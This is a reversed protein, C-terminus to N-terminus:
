TLAASRLDLVLFPSQTYNESGGIGGGVVVLVLGTRRRSESLPQLAQGQRPLAYLDSLLPSALLADLQRPDRGEALHAARDRVRRVAAGRLELEACEMTSRNADRAQPSSLLRKNSPPRATTTFPPDIRNDLTDNGTQRTNNM